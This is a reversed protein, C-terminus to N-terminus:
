ILYDTKIGTKQFTHILDTKSYCGLKMKITNIYTEITRPSIGLAQGIQKATKGESLIQLTQYERKSLFLDGSKTNIPYTNMKANSFEEFKKLTKDHNKFDNKHFIDELTVTSKILKKEDSYFEKSESKILLFIYNIFDMKNLFLDFVNFNSKDGAIYLAEVSDFLKRYVGCSNWIGLDFLIQSYKDLPEGTQFVLFEKNKEMKLIQSYDGFKSNYLKDKFYLQTWERITGLRLIRGDFFFRLYCLGKVGYDSFLPTCLEKLKSSFGLNFDLASNNTWSM